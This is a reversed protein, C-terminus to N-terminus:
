AALRLYTRLELLWAALAEPTFSDKDVVIVKWGHDRLWKRRLRDNERQEPSTHFERGDYEIV